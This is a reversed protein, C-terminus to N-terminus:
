QEGGGGESLVGLTLEVDLDTANKTYTEPWSM